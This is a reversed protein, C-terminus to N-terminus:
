SWMLMSSACTWTFRPVSSSTEPVTVVAETAVADQGLATENETAQSSTQVQVHLQEDVIITQVGQEPLSVEVDAFEVQNARPDTAPSTQVQAVMPQLSGLATCRADQLQAHFSHHIRSGNWNFHTLYAKLRLDAVECGIMDLKANDLTVHVQGLKIGTITAAGQTQNFDLQHLLTQESLVVRLKPSMFLSTWIPRRRKGYWFSMIQKVIVTTHQAGLNLKDRLSVFEQEAGQTARPEHATTSSSSAAPAPTQLTQLEILSTECNQLVLHDVDGRVIEIELDSVDLLLNDIKGQYIIQKAM